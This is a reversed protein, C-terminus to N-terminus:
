INRYRELSAFNDTTIKNFLDETCKEMNERKAAGKIDINKESLPIGYARYAKKM